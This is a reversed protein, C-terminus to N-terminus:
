RDVANVALYFTEPTVELEDQVEALWNILQLRMKENTPCDALHDERVNYKKELQKLYIFTETAYEPCLQPNDGDEADIDKVGPPLVREEPGRNLSLVSLKKSISPVPNPRM